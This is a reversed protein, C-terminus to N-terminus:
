DLVPKGDKMGKWGPTGWDKTAVFAAFIAGAALAVAARDRDASLFESGRLLYSMAGWQAVASAPLLGFFWILRNM